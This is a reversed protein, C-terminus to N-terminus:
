ATDRLFGACEEPIAVNIFINSGLEFGAIRFTEEGSAPENGACFPCSKEYQPLEGEPKKAQKFDGPRRARELAIIVWDGTVINYRLESM